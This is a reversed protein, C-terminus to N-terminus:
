RGALGQQQSLQGPKTAVLVLEDDGAYLYPRLLLSAARVAARAPGSLPQPAAPGSMLAHRLTMLVFLSDGGRASVRDILFGADQALRRLAPQSFHFLHVPVQYWGWSRPFLRQARSGLHPVALVLKGGPVLLRFAARIFAAPDRVHELVHQAFVADFALDGAAAAFQELTGEHVAIGHARAQAAPEHALEIGQVTAVGRRRLEDLLYGYMCGVDLASRIPPPRSPGLALDILKGSRWRKEREILAHVGYDYHRAYLADLEEPTPVPVTVGIGSPMGRHIGYSKTGAYTSAVTDLWPALQDGPVPSQPELQAASM